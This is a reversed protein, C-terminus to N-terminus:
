EHQITHETCLTHHDKKIQNDGYETHVNFMELTYWMWCNETVVGDKFCHTKKNPMSKHENCKSCAWM